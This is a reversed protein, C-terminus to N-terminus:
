ESELSETAADLYSSLSVFAFVVNAAIWSLLSVTFASQFLPMDFACAGAAGVWVGACMSCSLLYGFRESKSYVFERIPDLLESTTLILTVGICPLLFMIWEVFM